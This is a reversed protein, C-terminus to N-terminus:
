EDGEAQKVLARIRPLQNEKVGQVKGRKVKEEFAPLTQSTIPGGAKDEYAKLSTRASKASETNRRQEVRVGLERLIAQSNAPKNQAILDQKIQDAERDLKAKREFEAGKPDIFQLGIPVGALRRIGSDLDRDDARDSSHLKELLRIKDKTAVPLRAIQDSTTITGKYIGDIANFMAMPNSEGEGRSLKNLDDFSFVKLESMQRLIAKKDLPNTAREYSKYLDIAKMERDVKNAKDQQDRINNDTSIKQFYTQYVKAKADEGLTGWLDSLRGMDGAKMRNFANPDNAFEETMYKSLTNIKGDTLDKVIQTQYAAAGNVGVLAIANNIFNQALTDVIEDKSIVQGNTPDIQSESNYVIESVRQFDQYLREVKIGNAMMRKKTELKATEDIVKNGMTALSARYKFSSEPDVVALSQGYGDTIAKVQGRVQEFDIEGREAQQYVELLKTTAEAEAHASLEFARVKRVANDFVNMPSGLNVSSMDGKVMAQLQEQTLPNEAAFQLGAKQSLDGAERFVISSMRDLKDAVTGQYKAQGILAMEPTMQPYNVVPTAASPANNVGVRGSEIRPIEAM